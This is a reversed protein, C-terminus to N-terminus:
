SPLRRWGEFDTFLQERLALPSDHRVGWGQVCHLCGAAADAMVIVGVHRGGEPNRMLLVDGAALPATAPIPRWGMPRAAEPVDLLVDPVPWGHIHNLVHWVLGWCDYANPGRAGPEWPLGILDAAWHRPTM